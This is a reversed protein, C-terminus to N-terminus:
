NGALFFGEYLIKKDFVERCSIRGLPYSVNIMTPVVTCLSFAGFAFCSICTSYFGRGFDIKSYM